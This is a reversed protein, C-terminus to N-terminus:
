RPTTPRPSCGWDWGASWCCARWAQRRCARCLRRRSCRRPPQGWAAVSRATAPLRGPLLSSGVAAVAFGAPLATLALGSVAAPVGRADLVLPVAFLLAFLVLYGAFAAGLGALLSGSRLLAVEILPSAARRERLM